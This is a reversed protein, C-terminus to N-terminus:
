SRVRPIRSYTRAGVPECRHSGALTPGCGLLRVVCSSRPATFSGRNGCGNCCREGEQASLTWALRPTVTLPLRGKGVPPKRHGVRNEGNVEAPVLAAG